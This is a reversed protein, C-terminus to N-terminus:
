RKGVASTMAPGSDSTAPGAETAPPTEPVRMSYLGSQAKISPAGDNRVLWFMLWVM